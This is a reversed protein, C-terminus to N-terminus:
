APDTRYTEYKAILMLSALVVYAGIWLAFLRWQAPLFLSPLFDTIRHQFLWLQMLARNRGSGGNFALDVPLLTLLNYLCGYVITAAFVLGALITSVRELAYAVYFSGVPLLVILFRATPSWGGYWSKFSACALLYPLCVALTLLNFRIFQKKMAFIIGMFLFLFIPFSICLGFEQDFFMGFLGRFPLVVFAQSNGHIDNAENVFPNLTGWVKLNYVEFLGFLLIVPLLFCLYQRLKAGSHIEFLRYLFACFLVIEFLAFRIHVWPLIGLLLGSMLCAATTLKEQLVKRLVYICVLAGIPEIFNLHSYLYLPSAVVFALSVLWAYRKGIGMSLLLLYINLIILVSLSSIFLDVGLRGGFYFPLLWLIPAGISHLPLLQGSAGRSVHPALYIPYFSRYDAHTYDLMVNLSHYKLLTQSIVLFHAEDGAPPSPSLAYCFTTTFYVVSCVLALVLLQSRPAPRYFAQLFM